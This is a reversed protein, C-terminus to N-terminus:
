RRVRVEIEMENYTRWFEPPPEQDPRIEVRLHAKTPLYDHRELDEQDLALSDIAVIRGNLFRGDPLFIRAGKQPYLSSFDQVKFYAVITGPDDAALISLVKEDRGLYCHPRRYIGAVQGSVPAVVATEIREEKKRTELLLLSDRYTATREIESALEAMRYDLGLLEREWPGPRPERVLTYELARALAGEEYWAALALRGERSRKRMVELRDKLIGLEQDLRLIELRYDAGDDAEKVEVVALPQGKKVQERLGVKLARLVGPEPSVVEHRILAIRGTAEVYALRIFALHGLYVVLSILVAVYLYTSVRVGRGRIAPKESLHNLQSNGARLKM